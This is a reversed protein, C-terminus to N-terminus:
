RRRRADSAANTISFNANSGDTGVAGNNANFARVRVRCDNQTANVQPVQWLYSNGALGRDIRKWTGGGNTSYWLTVHRANAPATWRITAFSGELYSEGGNPDLLLVGASLRFDAVVNRAAGLTVQCDGLDSCDGGWGFFYSGPNPIATLNVATGANYSETCDAGCLIGGPASTSRVQGVGTGAQTVSLQFQPGVVQLYRLMGGGPATGNTLGLARDYVPYYGAGPVVVIADVTKGAYLEAQVGQQAFPYRNGDEAVMELTFGGFSPLRTKLGANLLRLLVTQGTTGLVTPSMGPAFAEGNVLFYKPQYDVTSTMWDVPVPPAPPPGYHGAAVAAHLAPDVESFLLTLDADYDTETVGYANTAAADNELAGYLGMQVQVAPHSGSQYLYTGPKITGVPWVYDTSNGAAVEHTFARIRGTVPNVIRTVQIPNVGDTAAPQGPITMSVAEPLGNNFLHITLGEGTPVTLAPGPVTAAGCGGFAAGCPAYGWMTVAQGDPMTKVFSEARLWFEAASAPHAALGLLLAAALPVARFGNRVLRSNM